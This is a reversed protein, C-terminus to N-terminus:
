AHSDRVEYIFNKYEDFVHNFEHVIDNQLRRNLINGVNQYVKMREEDRDGFDSRLRPRDGYYEEVMSRMNHIKDAAAVILAGESAEKLQAVYDAHKEMWMEREDRDEDETPAPATVERVIACVAKGFDGELEAFTYETDEITDHLLGAIVVDEDNTYDAVICAVAFPHIVYPYPIKGKRVQGNHLAAAARIAQEIRYSYMM